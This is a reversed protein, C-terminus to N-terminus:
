KQVRGGAKPAKPFLPIIRPLKRSDITGNLTKGAKPRQFWEFLINCFSVQVITELTVSDKQEATSQNILMYPIVLALKNM